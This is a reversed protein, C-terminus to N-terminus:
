WADRAGRSRQPPQLHGRTGWIRRSLETVVTIDAAVDSSGPESLAAWVVTGRAEVERSEKYWGNVEVVYRYGPAPTGDFQARVYPYEEEKPQLRWWRKANKEKKKEEKVVGASCRSPSPGRLRTLRSCVARSM